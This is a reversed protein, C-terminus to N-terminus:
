TLPRKCYDKDQLPENPRTIRAPYRPRVPTSAVGAAVGPTQHFECAQVDLGPFWGGRPLFHEIAVAQVEDDLRAAHLRPRQAVTALAIALRDLVRDAAVGHERELVRARCSGREAGLDLAACVRVILLHHCSAAFSLDIIRELSDSPAVDDLILEAM